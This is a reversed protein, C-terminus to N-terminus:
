ETCMYGKQFLHAFVAFTTISSLFSLLRPKRTGLLLLMRQKEREEEEESGADEVNMMRPLQDVGYIMHTSWGLHTDGSLL